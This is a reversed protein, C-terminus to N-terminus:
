LLPSALRLTNELLREGFSRRSWVERDLLDADDMYTRQLAHLEAAFEPDYVFLAVEYNLWISRMDLNVTGFMSMSGDVMISKTHLLGRRYLYISVGSAMLDDYHSRSAYRTLLSDVRQPVILSVKVGRGAAGRLARMMSEDPVFYPTTM